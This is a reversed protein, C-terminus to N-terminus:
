RKSQVEIWARTLCENPMCYEGNCVSCPEKMEEDHNINAIPETISQGDDTDSSCGQLIKMIENCNKYSYMSIDFQSHMRHDSIRQMQLGYFLMEDGHLANRADSFISCLCCVCVSLRIGSDLYWCVLESMHEGKRHTSQSPLVSRPM